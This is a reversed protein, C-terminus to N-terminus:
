EKNHIINRFVKLVENNNFNNVFENCRLTISISLVYKINKCPELFLQKQRMGLNKVLSLDDSIIMNAELDHWTLDSFKINRLNTKLADYFSIDINTMPSGLKSQLTRINQEIKERIWDFNSEQETKLGKIADLEIVSKYGIKM